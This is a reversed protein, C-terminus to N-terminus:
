LLHITPIQHGNHSKHFCTRSCYKRNFAPSYTILKGCFLCPTTKKKSCHLTVHASATLIKLNEIRNDDKIGNLHHVIEDNMLPRGLHQSMVLRHEPVYGSANAMPSQPMKVLIYGETNHTIGGKWMPNDAGANNSVGQRFHTRGTNFCVGIYRGRRTISSKRGIEAYQESTM